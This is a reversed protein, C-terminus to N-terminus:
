VTPPSVVIPILPAISHAFHLDWQTQYEIALSTSDIILLNEANSIEAEVTFNFSGTIVTKGDIIMVKNHAIAHHADIVVKIGAQRLVAFAKPAENLYSRDLIVQVTVGRVNAAVLATYIAVSTFSYAQVNITHKAKKIAAVIAATCGGKPSFYIKM